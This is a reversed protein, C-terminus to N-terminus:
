TGILGDFHGDERGQDFLDVATGNFYPLSCALYVRRAGQEKLLRSAKLLTGGTAILDDPMLVDKGEVDGVLRMSEIVSIKSYDRAKHVIALSCGLRNAYHRARDAGGVDPSAVVLNETPFNEVFHDLIVTSAHLNELTCHRFFGMIAEAHIDLTIVRDAGADELLRCVVSATIAERTKKREQRSYPFQPVVATIREADSQAAAHLATVMAMLNDNVSRHSFPDDMSQIVYVDDGRINEDIVTKIEGNSFEVESSQRLYGNELQPSCEQIIVALHERVARAFPLGSACAILSLRGRDRVPEAHTTGM